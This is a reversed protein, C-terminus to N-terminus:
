LQHLRPRRGRMRAAAHFAAADTTRRRTARPFSDASTQDDPEVDESTHPPVGAKRDHDVPDCDDDSTTRKEDHPQARQEV